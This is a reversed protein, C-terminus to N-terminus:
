SSLRFRNISARLEMAAAGAAGAFDEGNGAYLIARSSSIALGKGDGTCGQTVVAEVDGGQAGIGPVLFPLDGVIARVEALERPWTAGIVLLCNGNGNWEDAVKTAVRQYLPKGGCDLDQFDGAGVNSTRCLLVVGKDARDLFPQVSDRGLYPNLTVADAGYRDFAEVAYREATRIGSQESHITAAILTNRWLTSAYILEGKANSTSSDTNGSTAVYGASVEGSWPEAQAVFPIAALVVSAFVAPRFRIM